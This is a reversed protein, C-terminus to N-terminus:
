VPEAKGKAPCGREWGDPFAKERAAMGEIGDRGGSGAGSTGCFGVLNTPDTLHSNETEAKAGRWLKRCPPETVPLIM